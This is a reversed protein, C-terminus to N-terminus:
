CVEAAVEHEDYKCLGTENLSGQVVDNFIDGLM